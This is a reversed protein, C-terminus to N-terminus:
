WPRSMKGRTPRWSCRGARRGEPEARQDHRQSLRRPDAPRRWTTRWTISRCRRATRSSSRPASWCPSYGVFRGAGAAARGASAGAWGRAAARLLSIWTALISQMVDSRATRSTIVSVCLM